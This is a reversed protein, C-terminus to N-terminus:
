QVSLPTDNILFGFSITKKNRFYYQKIIPLFLPISVSVYKIAATIYLHVM